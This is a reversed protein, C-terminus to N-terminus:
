GGGPTKPLMPSVSRHIQGWHNVLPTRNDRLCSSSKPHTLHRNVWWGIERSKFVLEPGFERRIGLGIGSRSLGSCAFRVKVGSELWLVEVMRIREELRASSSNEWTPSPQSRTQM